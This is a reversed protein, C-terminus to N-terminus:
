LITDILPKISMSIIIIPLILGVILALKEKLFPKFTGKKCKYKILHYLLQPIIYIGEMILVKEVPLQTLILVIALAFWSLGALIITLTSLFKFIKREKTEYLDMCYISIFSMINLFCMIGFTIILIKDM